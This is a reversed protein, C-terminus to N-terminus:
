CLVLSAVAPAPGVHGAPASEEGRASKPSRPQCDPQANGGHAGHPGASGVYERFTRKLQHNPICPGRSQRQIVIIRLFHRWKLCRPVHWVPYLTRPRIRIADVIGNGILVALTCCSWVHICVICSRSFAMRFSCRVRSPRVTHPASAISFLFSASLLEQVRM